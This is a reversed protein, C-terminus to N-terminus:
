KDDEKRWRIEKEWIKPNEPTIHDEINLMSETFGSEESFSNIIGLGADEVKLPLKMMQPISALNSLNKKVTLAMKDSLSGGWEILNDAMDTNYRYDGINDEYDISLRELEDEVNMDNIVWTQGSEPFINAEFNNEQAEFERKNMTFCDLLINDKNFDENSPFRKVEDPKQFVIIDEDSDDILLGGQEDLCNSDYVM